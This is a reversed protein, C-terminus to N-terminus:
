YKYLGSYPKLWVKIKEIIGDTGIINCNVVCFCKLVAKIVVSQYEQCLHEDVCSSM